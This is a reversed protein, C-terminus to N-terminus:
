ECQVTILVSLAILFRHFEEKFNWDCPKVLFRLARGVNCGAAMLASDVAACMALWLGFAYAASLCAMGATAGGAIPSSSFVLFFRRPYQDGSTLM